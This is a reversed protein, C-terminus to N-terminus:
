KDCKKCIFKILESPRGFLGTCSEHYWDNCDICQWWDERDTDDDDGYFGGCHSCYNEGNEPDCVSSLAEKGKAQKAIKAQKKELAESRKRKREELRQEKEQKEKERQEKKHERELKRAEKAAAETEKKKQKELERHFVEDSTLCRAETIRNTQRGPKIVKSVVPKKLVASFKSTNQSAAPSVTGPSSVATPPSVAHPSTPGPEIDMPEPEDDSELSPTEQDAADETATPKKLIVEEQETDTPNVHVEANFELVVPMTVVGDDNTPPGPVEAAQYTIETEVASFQLHEPTIANPNYPYIGTSKFGSIINAMTFVKHYVDTFLGSFDYRTIIRNPNDRMFKDCRQNYATKVSKFVSKDLPQTHNTTHPPLCYMHISNERACRLTEINIHSAHGDLILLVPRTPPISPLFLKTFWTGFLEADIFGSKSTGFLTGPPANATLGVNLRQGKFIIFPPLVSGSASACILVTVNEGREGSTRSQVTKKGRAAIISSPTHVAHEAMEYALKCVAQLGIGFGQSELDKLHRVLEDEDAMSFVPPRTAPLSSPIGKRIRRSLTSKPVGYQKAAERIGLRGETVATYASAMANSQWKGQKPTWSKKKRAM